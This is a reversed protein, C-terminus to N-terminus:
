QELEKPLHGLAITLVVSAADSGRHAAAAGLAVGALEAMQCLDEPTPAVAEVIAPPGDPARVSGLRGGPLPGLRDCALDLAKALPRQVRELAADLRLGHVPQWEYFAADGDTIPRAPADNGLALRLATAAATLCRSTLTKENTDGTYRGRALEVAEHSEPAASTIGAVVADLVPSPAAPPDTPPLVSAINAHAPSLGAAARLDQWVDVAIEIARRTSATHVAFALEPGVMISPAVSIDLVDHEHSSLVEAAASRLASAEAGDIRLYVSTSDARTLLLDDLHGRLVEVGDITGVLATTPVVSGSPAARVCSQALLRNAEAVCAALDVRLRDATEAVTIGSAAVACVLVELGLQPPPVDPREASGLSYVTQRSCGAMRQIESGGLGVARALVVADQLRASTRKGRQVGLLQRAVEHALDAGTLSLAIGTHGIRM